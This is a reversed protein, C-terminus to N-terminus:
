KSADDILIRLMLDSLDETNMKKYDDATDADFRGVYTKTRDDKVLSVMHEDGNNFFHATYAEGRITLPETRYNHFAILTMPSSTLTLEKQDTACSADSAELLKGTPECEGSGKGDGSSNPSPTASGLPSADASQAHNPEQPPKVFEVSAVDKADILVGELEPLPQTQHNAYRTVDTVFFHGNTADSPWMTPWGYIRTGDKLQLVIYRQLECFAGFWESPHGSRTSLKLKRALVHIKDTNTLASVGLGLVLATLLSSVLASTETWEGWRFFHAGVYEAVWKELAVIPQVAVTFVLAQVVREFQSPKIHSTLGFYVWAVLFGPALYQLLAVVDKSIEPMACCLPAHELRGM